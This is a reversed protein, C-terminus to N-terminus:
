NKKERKARAADLSLVGARAERRAELERALQAVTTWEGAATAGKLAAALAAEVPDTAQGMKSNKTPRRADGLVKSDAALRKEAEPASQAGHHSAPPRLTTPEFGAAGVIKPGSRPGGRRAKPMRNPAKRPASESAKCLMSLAREIGPIPSLEPICLVLPDVDGLDLEGLANAAQRYRLLQDSKHGTRRRVADENTGVALNRTVMSRRFCHTGFRGKNPGRSYLDTRKLGADAMWVRLKDAMHDVDLPGGNEDVFVPDTAEMDGRLAFWAAFAEAVGPSLKWWRPHDTKNEDLNVTGHALDIDGRQLAVGEGRRSGERHLFGFYMRAWLPITTTALFQRDEAPYMIPFRKAPSPAGAWGRPLPSREIYGALEALGFIRTMLLAYQRITTDSLEGDKAKPNRPLQRLVADCDARTLDKIPRHGIHPYIARALRQACGSAHEPTIPKVQRPFDRRAGGSTWWAGVDQFTKVSGDSKKKDTPLRGSCLGEALRVAVRFSEANEATGMRKLIPIAEVALGAAVMDRAVERMKAERKTAEAETCNTIEFRKRGFSGLRIRTEHAM